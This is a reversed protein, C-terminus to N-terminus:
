RWWWWEGHRQGGARVVDNGEGGTINDSRSGGLITVDWTAGAATFVHSFTSTTAASAFEIQGSFLNLAM